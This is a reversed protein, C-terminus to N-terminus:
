QLLIAAPVSMCTSHLLTASVVCLYRVCATVANELAVGSTVCKVKRQLNHQLVVCLVKM